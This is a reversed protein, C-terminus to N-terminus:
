GVRKEIQRFISLLLGALAMSVVLFLTGFAAAYGYNGEAFKNYMLTLITETSYGPGGGTLSFVIDFVKLGSIMGTVINFQIAPLLGPLTISTFSRWRGAGDLSAAEYLDPSISQLNALYIIMSYGFWQWVQSAIVAWLATKPDGLFNVSEIGFAGLARNVLGYDSSSLLFQWLYGVVLMSLVAPSFFIARFGNRFPLRSNLIVAVPLSILNALLVQAFTFTLSNRIGKLITPDDVAKTYNEVGVFQANPSYISWDTFSLQITKAVPYIFFVVFVILAPAVMLIYPLNARLRTNM